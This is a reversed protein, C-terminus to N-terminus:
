SLESHRRPCLARSLLLGDLAVWARRRAPGQLLRRKPAPVVMVVRPVAAVKAPLANMLVSSPYSATGGPVYLGVSSVATWRSGLEVGQQDKYCDDKPRRCWWSSARYRPWKPLCRM